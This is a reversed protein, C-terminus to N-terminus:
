LMMNVIDMHLQTTFKIFANLKKEEPPVTVFGAIQNTRLATGIKRYRQKLIYEADRFGTGESGNKM